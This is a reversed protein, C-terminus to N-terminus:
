TAKNAQAQRNIGHSLGAITCSRTPAQSNGSQDEADQTHDGYREDIQDNQLLAMVQRVLEVLHVALQAGWPYRRLCASPNDPYSCPSTLGEFRQATKDHHCKDCLGQLDERNGSPGDIHDVETSPQKSCLCCLGDNAALVAAHMKPELRRHKSNYGGVVLHAMRM